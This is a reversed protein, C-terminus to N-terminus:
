KKLVKKIISKIKQKKVWDTYNDKKLGREELTTIFLGSVKIKSYNTTLKNNKCYFNGNVINPGNDLSSLKNNSCYFNGAIEKPSLELSTLINNSCDFSGTIYKPGGKLTKLKNYPCYLSGMVKNFNLPLETLNQGDLYVNGNVDISGDDNITYNKIRYKECISIIYTVDM